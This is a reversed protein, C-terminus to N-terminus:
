DGQVPATLARKWTLTVKYNADISAAALIAGAQASLKLGFEVGIETPPITLSRLVSIIGEAAPKVSALAQNLTATAREVTASAQGSRLTGGRPTMEDVEVLLTSGDELPFEVLQTV